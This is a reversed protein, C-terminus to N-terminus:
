SRRIEIYDPTVESVTGDISSHICAGLSGEPICGIMQGATVQQGASVTPQAAAGVHQRTSIRITEPAFAVDTMPAPLDFERLGLRAILRKSPVLRYERVPRATFETKEPKYKVKQEALMDKFYLNAM